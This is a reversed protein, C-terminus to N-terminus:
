IAKATKLTNSILHTTSFLIVFDTISNLICVNNQIADVAQDTSLKRLPSQNVIINNKNDPEKPLIIISFYKLFFSASFSVIQNKQNETLQNFYHYIIKPTTNM